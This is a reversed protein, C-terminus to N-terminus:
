KEPVPVNPNTKKIKTILRQREKSDRALAVRAKLKRLKAKRNRRRKIERDREVQPM